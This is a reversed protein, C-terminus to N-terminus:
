CNEDTIEVIDEIMCNLEKCIKCLIETSVHENEGPKEM